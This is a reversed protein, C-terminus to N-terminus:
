KNNKHSFEYLDHLVLNSWLNGSAVHGDASVIVLNTFLPQVWPMKISLFGNLLFQTKVLFFGPSM